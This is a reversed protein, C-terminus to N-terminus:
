PAVAGVARVVLRESFGAAFSAALILGSTPEGGIQLLGSILFAAVVLAGVAAVVFRALTMWLSLLQEPIRAEASGGAISLIGSMSAGMVGFLVASGVLEPDDIRMESALSPPALTAWIMWIVVALFGFSALKVLQKRAARLKHYINAFHEDRIQIACFVEAVDLGPKLQGDKCLLDKIAQLRWSGLKKTAEHLVTLAKAKIASEDNLEDLGFLEMREAATFCRWGRDEDRDDIAQQVDDLLAQAADAWLLNKVGKAESQKKLHVLRERYPDVSSALRTLSASRLWVRKRIRSWLSPKSVKHSDMLLSREGAYDLKALAKQVPLWVLEGVEESPQFECEGLPNMNWFLVIKPVGKVTYSVSGAFSGLQVNCGTEEKVERIAADQWREGANLKGKPLTWDGYRARHIVAVEKGRPSDRWVLGGAAQIVSAGSNENTM